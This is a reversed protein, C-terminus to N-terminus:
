FREIRGAATWKEPPAGDPVRRLRRGTTADVRSAFTWREGDWTPESERAAAAAAAARETDRLHAAVAAAIAAAEEDDADDPLSLRDTLDSM